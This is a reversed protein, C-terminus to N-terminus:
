ICTLLLVIGYEIHFRTKLSLIPLLKRIGVACERTCFLLFLCCCRRFKGNQQQPPANALTFNAGDSLCRIGFQLHKNSFHDCHHRPLGVCPGDGDQEDGEIFYPIMRTRTNWSGLMETNRCCISYLLVFVVLLVMMPPQQLADTIV